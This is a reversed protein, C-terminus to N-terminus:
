ILTTASSCRIKEIMEKATSLAEGIEKRPYDVVPGLPYREEVYYATTKRAFDLYGEFNVDFVMAETVLRELDHIKELRWGNFLLFGKLYKEIAQQILMAITDTYHGSEFLIEAGEIDHKGRDFWEKAIKSRDSM